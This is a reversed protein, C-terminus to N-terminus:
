LYFNSRVCELYSDETNCDETSNCPQWYRGMIVRSFSHARFVSSTNGPAAGSSNLTWYFKILHTYCIDVERVKECDAKWYIISSPTLSLVSLRLHLTHHFTFTLMWFLWNKNMKWVTLINILAMGSKIDHGWGGDTVDIGADSFYLNTDWKM